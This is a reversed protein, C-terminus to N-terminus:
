GRQKRLAAMIWKAVWPLLGLAAFSGLLAPSAIDSLQSIGALQTGANVYVITGLLMGIQSVWYYTWTRIPTLGMVLNVVFFPFIPVLRLSFLYFGGDRAVGENVAQLRGGFRSQVADRFLYRSALFALTAGITSAFSVILTGTVVGFIAGGALTMIAAGPVSLATLAVYLAFYVSIVMLPQAQYISDFEAQRAKLADLTLYQGLDFLFWCAIALVFLAAIIIRKLQPEELQRRSVRM